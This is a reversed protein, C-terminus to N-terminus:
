GLPSPAACLGFGGTTGHVELAGELLVAVYQLEGPRREDLMATANHPEM